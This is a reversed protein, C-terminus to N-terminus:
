KILTQYVIPAGWPAYTRFRVGPSPLGQLNTVEIAGGWGSRAENPDIGLKQRIAATDSGSLSKFSDVCPLMDDPININCPSMRVFNATASNIRPSVERQVRQWNAFRKGLAQMADVSAKVSRSQIERGNIQFHRVKAPSGGKTGQQFVGKSDFGTGTVNNEPLWIAMKHYQVAGDVLRTTSAFQASYRVPIGAGGFAESATIARTKSDIDSKNREYWRTMALRAEDLWVQQHYAHQGNSIRNLDHTISTYILVIILGLVGFSLGVVFGGQRNKQITVARKM